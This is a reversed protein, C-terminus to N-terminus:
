ETPPSAEKIWKKRIKQHDHKWNPSSRVKDRGTKLRRLKGDFGYHFINDVMAAIGLASVFTVDYAALNREELYEPYKTKMMSANAKNILHFLEAYDTSHVNRSFNRYVVDYLHSYDAERARQEVSLGSFGYKKIKKLEQPDYRGEIERENAALSEPTPAGPVFEFGMFNSARAQKIKELMMSDLLKKCTGMPDKRLLRVFAEFTVNLEFIVRVLAQAEHHLLQKYLLLIGELTHTGKILFALIIQFAVDGHRPNAIMTEIIKNSIRFLSRLLKLYSKEHEDLLNEFKLTKQDM